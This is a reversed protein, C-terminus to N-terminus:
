EGEVIPEVSIYNPHAEILTQLEEVEITFPANDSYYDRDVALTEGFESLLDCVFQHKDDVALAYKVNALSAEKFGVQVNTILVKEM